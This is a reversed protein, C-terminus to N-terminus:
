LPCCPQLGQRTGLPYLARTGIQVPTGRQCCLAFLVSHEGSRVLGQLRKRTRKGNASSHRIVQAGSSCVQM